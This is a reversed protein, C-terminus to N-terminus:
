KHKEEALLLVLVALIPLNKSIPGYPHILFEPLCAAIILSYGLILAMQALWLRRGPAVLTAIGFFADLLGAGILALLAPTGHLGTRVLLALSEAVPYAFLSVFATILWVAALSVRLLLGRWASLAEHRALAASQPPIFDGPSRPPRGLLRRTDAIDATNGAQLMKWTDPTLMSGPLRGAVAASLRMAVAPIALCIAPPLDMARRYTLLLDRLTSEEGGVLNVCQGAPTAPDLLCEIAACLDDIHIPRLRQTGGAPLLIIPLSALLRFFGASKGEDGYVLAPRVIQWELPLRQLAEDAARKSTFYPTDGTDAGLASVQVVRRVGAAICAAFLQQPGGSHIALFRQRGNEVIIGVCNVVANCGAMSRAWAAPDAHDYDIRVDNPGQTNRVGRVVTHGAAGLHRALAAGMFGNAGVILVRM